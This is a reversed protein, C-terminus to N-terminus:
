PWAFLEAARVAAHTPEVVDGTDRVLSSGRLDRIAQRIAEEESHDGNDAVKLILEATTLHEPHLDLIVVLVAHEVLRDQDSVSM